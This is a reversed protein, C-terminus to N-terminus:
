QIPILKEVLSQTILSVVTSSDIGGSLFAGLSVDSRLRRQLSESLVNDLTELVTSESEVNAGNFEPMFYRTETSAGHMSFRKYSGQSLKFVNAFITYPAPPFQFYLYLSLHDPTVEGVFDPIVNFAGIESAFFTCGNIETYYLTKEGFPDRALLLQGSIQNYYAFAFMGDLETIFNEAADDLGILLTITDSHSNCSVGKDNLKKALEVYNYVEGNFALGAKHSVIPQHSQPSLDIISLRRHGLACKGDNSVWVGADDPGRHVLKDCMAQVLKTMQEKSYFDSKNYIGAIGCM